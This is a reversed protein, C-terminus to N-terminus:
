LGLEKKLVPVLKDAIIRHGDRLPHLPELPVWLTADVFVIDDGHEANYEALM